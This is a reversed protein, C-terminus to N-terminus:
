VVLQPRLHSRQLPRGVYIYCILCVVLPEAKSLDRFQVSVLVLFRAEVFVYNMAYIATGWHVLNFDFDRYNSRSAHSPAHFRTFSSYVCRCFLAQQTPNEKLPPSWVPRPLLSMIEHIFSISLSAFSRTWMMDLAFSNHQFRRTRM